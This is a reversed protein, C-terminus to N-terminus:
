SHPDDAVAKAPAVALPRLPQQEADWGDAAAKMRAIRDEDLPHTSLLAPAEGGLSDRHRALVEFVDSGGGAHGYLRKVAAIAAEDAEAEARRSYGRQVVTAFASSLNAADGSVLAIALLMTASGALGAIPDRARVHAIEHALVLALANESPMSEYLGRTVAIHGGLAAFANPVKTEIYHVRLSSGEPMDMQGALRETLEQLYTVVPRGAKGAEPLEIGLVRDGVMSRETELPLLRALAGAGFYLAVSAATVLLALGAALRLFEGVPHDRSVNVDQPLPPNEYSM